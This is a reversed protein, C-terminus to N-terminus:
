MLSMPTAFPLQQADACVPALITTPAKGRGARLMATSFDAAAIFGGFGRQRSLQASVDMTGACLDLYRGEPAHRWDLARLARRRWWRDVNFSLLHNLLDYRPAIEEFVARVYAHKQAGGEAAADARRAESETDHM